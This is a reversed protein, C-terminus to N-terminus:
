GRERILDDVPVAESEGGRTYARLEGGKGPQIEVRFDRTRERDDFPFRIEDRLNGKEYYGAEDICEGELTGRVVQTGRDTPYVDRVIFEPASAERRECLVDLSAMRGREAPATEPGPKGPEKAGPAPQAFAVPLAIWVSTFLVLALRYM